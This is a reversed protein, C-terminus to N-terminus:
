NLKFTIPIMFSVPVARGRQSAPTMKPISRVIRIAEEDLSKDIGRLVTADSIVGDKGIVFKIIVRGQIGMERAIEPYKFNKRVHKMINKQFCIYRSQKDSFNECGPYIPQSEVVQFNYVEEEEEEEVPMLPPPTSKQFEIETEQDIETSSIELEFEIATNDAVVMIQTVPPPPLKRIKEKRRETVPMAKDDIVSTQQTYFIETDFSNKSKSELAFYVLVLSLFLGIEFFITRYKELNVVSYKKIEM